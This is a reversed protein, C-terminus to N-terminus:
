AFVPMFEQTEVDLLPGLDSIRVEPIVTLALGSIALARARARIGLSEVTDNLAKMDVALESVPKLSMLGALPLEVKSLVKGEAVAVIGGGCQELERVAMLMDEPKHGAVLVNHSDHAVTSAMAGRRLQLGKLLALSPSHTQGHRPVVSLYCIDEGLTALDLEYNAVQGSVTELHTMRSPELVMLNVNIQGAKIPAKLRFADASLPQLHVSNEIPLTTPPEQIPAILKGNEVVLKGGVFVESTRVEELSSLLLIDAYYGPAIAGHDRLRYHRAGNYTAWRIARVPDIDHAIM